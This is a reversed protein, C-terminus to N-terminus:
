EGSLILADLDGFRVVTPPEYPGSPAGAPPPEAAAAGGRVVLDADVLAGVFKEAENAAEDPPRDFAEVLVTALRETDAGVVVQKWLLTGVPNLGYYQASEVHILVAEGDLDNWMVAEDDVRYM